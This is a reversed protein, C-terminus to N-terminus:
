TMCLMGLGARIGGLLYAQTYTAKLHKTHGFYKNAYIEIAFILSTQQHM